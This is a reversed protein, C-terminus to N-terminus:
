WTDAVLPGNTETLDEASGTNKFFDTVSNTSRFHPTGYTEMAEAPTKDANIFNRRNATVSLDLYADDIYIGYMSCDSVSTGTFTAM